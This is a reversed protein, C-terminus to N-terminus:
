LDILYVADTFLLLLFFHSLIFYFFFFYFLYIWMIRPYKAEWIVNELTKNQLNMLKCYM